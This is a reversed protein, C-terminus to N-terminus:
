LATGAVASRLKVAPDTSAFLGDRSSYPDDIATAECAASACIRIPLTGHGDLPRGNDVEPAYTWRKLGQVIGKRLERDIRGSFTAGSFARADTLQVDVVSGDGAYHVDAVIYVQDPSRLFAHFISTMDPKRVRGGTSASEIRVALGGHGDDSALMSVGLHTRSPVAIGNETAPVFQWSEIRERLRQAIQDAVPVLAPVDALKSVKGMEVVHAHGDAGVDVTATVGCDLSSPPPEAARVTACLMCAGLSVIDYRM